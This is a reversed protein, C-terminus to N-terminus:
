PNLHNCHHLLVTRQPLFFRNCAVALATCFCASSRRLQSPMTWKGWLPQSKLDIDTEPRNQQFVRQNFRHFAV